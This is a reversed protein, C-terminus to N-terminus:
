QPLVLSSFIKFKEREYKYMIQVFVLTIRHIWCDTNYPVVKSLLLRAAHNLFGDISELLFIYRESYWSTILCIYNKVALVLTGKQYSEWTTM